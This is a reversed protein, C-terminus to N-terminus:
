YAEARKKSCFIVHRFSAAASAVVAAVTAEHAGSGKDPYPGKLGGLKEHREQRHEEVRRRVESPSVDDVLHMM